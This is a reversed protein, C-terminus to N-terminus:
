PCYSGEYCRNVGCGYCNTRCDPSLEGRLSKEYERWLFEKTVGVDVFDWPLVEDFSRERRAYFDGDIGTEELAEQWLDFRFHEDWGDFVCGKEYARQLVEALRRDGRAFIAELYSLEPEHYSFKIKRDRIQSKVYRAKADFDGRSDQSVWQFPTFPKPVFCATGVSIRLNGKRQEKPLNFFMEVVKKGLNAIGQLDEETETPLGIMFYLKISSYGERFAFTVARELDEETINKNIVDRLRQTGAEPAFTLGTKRVKQIEALVELSDSDLRLSPLSISVNKEAFEEMMERVLEKLHPYDCTSLSSLTVEDYGTAELSKRTSDMVNSVSRERIPRYIMGAQCFRCGQTCGRFLETTARDHVIKVFPVIHRDLHYTNEFDVIRKRVREKAGDYLRIREAITGDEKYTVDYFEPVYIGEIECARKLFEERSVGEKKCTEYLGILEMNVEEGEGMIFLDIFAHLPEPNYACSGGAVVLPHEEGREDSRLPLGALNLMNLINTYSMEYQLTFGIIDFESLPTKTELTFLPLNKERMLREMDPWPAYVREMAYRSHSNMIYYLIQTGMHSMGVEYVDPFAFAFRVTLEDVSKEKVVSNIEGGIYRAPKEIKKLVSHLIEKDIMKEGFYPFFERITFEGEM